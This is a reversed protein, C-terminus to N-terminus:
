QAKPKTTSIDPNPSNKPQAGPLKDNPGCSEAISNLCLRAIAGSAGRSGWLSDCRCSAMEWDCDGEFAAMMAGLVGDDVVAVRDDEIAASGVVEDEVVTVVDMLGDEIGGTTADGEGEDLTM